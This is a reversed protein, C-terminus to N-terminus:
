PKTGQPFARKEALNLLRPMDWRQPIGALWVSGDADFMADLRKDRPAAAREYSSFEAKGLPTLCHLTQNDSGRLALTQPLTAEFPGCMVADLAPSLARLLPRADAFAYGTFLLISKDQRRKLLRVLAELAAPQELPEGGTITLGDFLALRPRLTDALESVPLTPAEFAWTEPSVCGPCRFSCGQFWIALRRGPGLATVPFHIRSISALPGATM